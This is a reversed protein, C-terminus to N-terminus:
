NNTVIRKYVDSTYYTEKFINEWEEDTKQNEETEFFSIVDFHPIKIKKDFLIIYGYTYIYEESKEKEIVITNVAEKFIRNLEDQNFKQYLLEVLKSVIFSNDSLGNNFMEPLLCNIASDLKGLGIYCDAYLSTIFINNAAIANGCFHNYSYVSDALSVYKLAKRYNKNDLNIEALYKCARHKYLAYPEAMIGEGPGGMENEEFKGNLILEFYKRASTTDEIISYIHGINYLVRPYLEHRKDQAISLFMELAEQYEKNEYHEEARSFKDEITQSYTVGNLLIVILLLISKIM